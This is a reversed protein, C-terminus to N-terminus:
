SEDKLRRDVAAAYREMAQTLDLLADVAEQGMDALLAENGLEMKLRLALTSVKANLINLKDFMVRETQQRM